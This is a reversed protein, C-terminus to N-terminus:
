QAIIGTADFNMSFFPMPANPMIGSTPAMMALNGGVGSMTGPSPGGPGYWAYSVEESAGQVITCGSGAALVVTMGMIGPTPYGNGDVALPCEVGNQKLDFGGQPWVKLGDTATDEWVMPKGIFDSSGPASFHVTITQTASNVIPTTGPTEWFPTMNTNGLDEVQHIFYGVCAGWQITGYGGTHINDAGNFAWGYSPCTCYVRGSYMGGQGPLNNLCFQVTGWDSIPYVTGNSIESPLTLYYFLSKGPANVNLADNDVVLANLDTVKGALTNTNSGGQTYVVRKVYFGEISGRPVTNPVQNFVTLMNTWSLGNTKIDEAGITLPTGFTVSYTGTGGSGTCTIGNCNGGFSDLVAGTLAPAPVTDGATVTGSEIASVNLVNDAAAGGMTAVVTAHTMVLTTALFVDGIGVYYYGSTGGTGTGGKFVYYKGVSTPVGSGVVLQGPVIEGTLGSSCTYINNTISGNACDAGPALGGGLGSWWTSGPYGFNFEIVPLIATGDLQRYLQLALVDSRGISACDTPQYGVLGNVAGPLSIGASTPLPGNISPVIPNTYHFTLVTQTQPNVGYLAFSSWCNTDWSQGQSNQADAMYPAQSNPQFGGTSFAVNARAIESICLISIVFLLYKVLTYM